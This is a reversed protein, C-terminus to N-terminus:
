KDEDSCLENDDLTAMFLKDTILKIDKSMKIREGIANFSNESSLSSLRDRKKEAGGEVAPVNSTEDLKKVEGSMLNEKDRRKSNLEHMKQYHEALIPGMKKMNENRKVAFQYELKTKMYEKLVEEHKKQAEENMALADKWQKEFNQNAYRKNRLADLHNRYVNGASAKAKIM